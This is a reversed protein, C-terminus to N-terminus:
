RLGLQNRLYNAGKNSILYTTIIKGNAKCISRECTIYNLDVLSLLAKNREEIPIRHFYRRLKSLTMEKHKYLSILIRQELKQM